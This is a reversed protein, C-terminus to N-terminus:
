KHRKSDSFYKLGLWSANAAIWEGLHIIGTPKSESVLLNAMFSALEDKTLVKDRLIVELPKMMLPIKDPPLKLVIPNTKIHVCIHKILEEFTFIDPGIADIIKNDNNKSSENVLEALDVVHIPQMKYSGDGPIAFVPLHRLFWAINNILIGQDGFLMAPRLITYNLGSEKLINEAEAKARYYPYPSDESPNLISIHVFKRVEAHKASEILLKTNEVVDKFKLKGTENRIWYTNVFLDADKMINAIDDPSSFDLPYSEILESLESNQSPHNTLTSVKWGEDLLKKAIYKGSFSFAGTVLARKEQNSM